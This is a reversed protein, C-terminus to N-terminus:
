IYLYLDLSFLFTAIIQLLLTMLVSEQPLYYYYCHCSSPYPPCISAQNFTLPCHSVTTHSPVTQLCFAAPTPSLGQPSPTLRVHSLSRASSFKRYSPKRLPESPLSGAQLVPTGPEVEPDPLAGPSPCPLGRWCGRWSFGMPLPAQGVVTWLTM